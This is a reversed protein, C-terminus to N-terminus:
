WAMAPGATVLLHASGVISLFVSAPKSLLRMRLLQKCLMFSAQELAGSTSVLGERRLRLRGEALEGRLLQALDRDRGHVAAVNLVALWAVLVARPLSALVDALSESTAACHPAHIAQM